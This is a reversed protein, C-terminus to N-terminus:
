FSLGDASVALASLMQSAYRRATSVDVCHLALDCGTGEALRIGYRPTEGGEYLSGLQRRRFVRIDPRFVFTTYLFALTRLSAGRLVHRGSVALELVM